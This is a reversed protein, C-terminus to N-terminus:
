AQLRQLDATREALKATAADAAEQAASPATGATTASSAAGDAMDPRGPARGSDAAGGGVAAPTQSGEGSTVSMGGPRSVSHKGPRPQARAPAPGRRPGPEGSERVQGTAPDIRRRDRVVPGQSEEEPRM